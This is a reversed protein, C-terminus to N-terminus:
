IAAEELKEGKKATEILKDPDFQFESSTLGDITGKV